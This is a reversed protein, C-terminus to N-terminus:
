NEFFDVVDKYVEEKNTENLLEHRAGDYIKIKADINHKLYTKYLSEVQKGNAGVPDCNGAILFLKKNGVKEISKNAKNMNKIMSKYFSFPFSGGCMPDAIYSDFVKEDRSLWNGRDFKKGYSKICLTEILGGGSEKNKFPSLLSAVLGGAKMLASSGNATGCIVAKSVLHTQQVLVQTLMSGYSHGFVYIPLNYNASIESLIILQDQVTESFIDKDGFGRKEPSPATKGHGRLDSAVVVYGNTNLFKAFSEYRLCHEQMGHIILVVAKPKEVNDYLYTNLSLDNFGLLQINKAEDMKEEKKVNKKPPNKPKESKAKTTSKENAPKSKPTSTENKKAVSNKKENATKAEKEEKIAEKQKASKTNRTAKVEGKQSTKKKEEEKSTTTM